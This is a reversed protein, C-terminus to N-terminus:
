WGRWTSERRSHSEAALAEIARKINDTAAELSERSSSSRDFQLPPGFILTAACPTLVAHAIEKGRQTGDLYAPYVPVGSKIALMAVGTQLSLLERGTEIRGEPFVGLIRGKHLARLAMRMAPMDRGSRQVPIIGISRFVWPLGPVPVQYYEAAMMWTILRRCASQIFLPDAGSTHNCVLIGPGNRPLRCPTYVRVDHYLHCLLYNVSTLSRVPFSDEPLPAPRTLENPASTAPADPTV